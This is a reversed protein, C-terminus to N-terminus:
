LSGFAVLWDCGHSTSVKHRYSRTFIIFCAQNTDPFLRRVHTLLKSVLKAADTLWLHHQCSSCLPLCSQYSIYLLLIHLLPDM